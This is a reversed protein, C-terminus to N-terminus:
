DFVSNRFSQLPDQLRDFFFLCAGYDLGMHSPSLFERSDLHPHIEVLDGTIPYPHTEILDSMTPIPSYIFEIRLIFGGLVFLLDM